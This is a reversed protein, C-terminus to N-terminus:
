AQISYGFVVSGGGKGDARGVLVGLLDVLVKTLLGVIGALSDLMDSRFGVGLDGAVSLRSVFRVPLSLDFVM